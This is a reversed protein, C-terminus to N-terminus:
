HALLSTPLQVVCFKKLPLLGFPWFCMFFHEGDRAIFSICILVVSLNWRMRTLIALMMLVKLKQERQVDKNSFVKKFRMNIQVVALSFSFVNLDNFEVKLTLGGM